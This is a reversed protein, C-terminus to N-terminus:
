VSFPSSPALVTLSVLPVCGVSDALCPEQVGVSGTPDAVSGRCTTITSKRVTKTPGQVTPIPTDRVRKGTRSGRERRSAQRMWDQCPPKHRTKNYSTIGHEPALGPLSARKQLSISFCRIHPSLISPFSTPTFPPCTAAPVFQMLSACVFLFINIFWIFEILLAYKVAKSREVYPIRTFSFSSIEFETNPEILLEHSHPACCKGQTQM